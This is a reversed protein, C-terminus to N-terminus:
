FKFNRVKYIWCDLHNFLGGKKFRIVMILRTNKINNIFSKFDRQASKKLDTIKGLRYNKSLILTKGGPAACADLINNYDKEGTLLPILASAKDMSYFSQKQQDDIKDYNYFKMNSCPRIDFFDPSSNLSKLFEM